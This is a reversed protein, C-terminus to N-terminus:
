SLSALSAGKKKERGPGPYATSPPIIRLNGEPVLHSWIYSTKKEDRVIQLYASRERERFLSSGKSVQRKKEIKKAGPV